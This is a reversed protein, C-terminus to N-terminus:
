ARTQQKALAEEEKASINIMMHQENFQRWCVLRIIRLYCYGIPIAKLLAKAFAKKVGVSWRFTDTSVTQAKAHFMKTTVDAGLPQQHIICSTRIQTGHKTTKHKSFVFYVKLVRDDLRIIQM